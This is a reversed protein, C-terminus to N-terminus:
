DLTFDEGQKDNPLSVIERDFLESSSQGEFGECNGVASFSSIQTVESGNAAM